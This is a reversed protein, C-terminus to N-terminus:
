RHGRGSLAEAALLGHILVVQLKFGERFPLGDLLFPVGDIARLHGSPIKGKADGIVFSAYGETQVLESSGDPSRALHASAPMWVLSVFPQAGGQSGLMTQLYARAEPSLTIDVLDDFM